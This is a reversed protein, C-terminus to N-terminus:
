RAIYSDYFPQMVIVEDGPDVVAQIFSFIAESAGVTTMVETMPEIKRNILPGYYRSLANVLRPHGESRTYQHGLNPNSVSKQAANLIFPQVPLTPFGQGLNIANHKNAL